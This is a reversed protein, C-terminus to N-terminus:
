LFGQLCLSKMQLTTEMWTHFLAPCGSSCFFVSLTSVNLKFAKTKTRFSFMWDQGKTLWVFGTGVRTLGARVWGVTLKDDTQQKKRGGCPVRLCLQCSACIPNLAARELSFFSSDLGSCISNRTRNEQKRKGRSRDGARGGQGERPQEATCCTLTRALVSQCTEPSSDVGQLCRDLCQSVNKNLVKFLTQSLLIYNNSGGFIAVKSHM